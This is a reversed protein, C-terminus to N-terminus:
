VYNFFMSIPPPEGLQMRGAKARDADAKYEWWLAEFSLELGRELKFRQFAWWLFFSFRFHSVLTEEKWSCTNELGCFQKLERHMTDIRWRLKRYRQATKPTMRMDNSVYFKYELSEERLAFVKVRGLEKVHLIAQKYFVKIGEHTFYREEKGRFYEDVRIWRSFLRIKRNSKLRALYILGNERASGLIKGTAYTADVLLVIRNRPIKGHFSLKEELL